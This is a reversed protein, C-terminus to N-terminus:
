QTPAVLEIEKEAVHRPGKTTTARIIFPANYPGPFKATQIKLAVNSQDPALEVPNAFIGKAHGPQILEIKMAQKRVTPERRITVPIVFVTGSEATYSDASTEVSVLGAAAVSILQDDRANSTYSVKHQTGDFDTMEGIIMVQVRSTRGVEVRFPFDIPFDFEAAMAPINVIRDTIGQLHRIQKDALRVTIPGNFDGRELEYHRFYTTGGPLGTVIRYQGTHKFPIRPVIGILVHDPGATHNAARTANQDGLDGTGKVSLRHVGIKTKPPVFFQLDVSNKNAGIKANFVKVNGPLGNLALQIEGKFGGQRQVNIKLKPGVPKTNDKRTEIARTINLHAAGFTLSFSPKTESAAATIRYSFTSGGRSAFREKVQITYVGTNPATFDLRPDVQGKARDDNIALQKGKVDLVSLIADLPSGLQAAALDITIKQKEELQIQWTDIEGPEVIRGNVVVPVAVTTKTPELYEPHNGVLFTSQGLAKLTFIQRDSKANLSVTAAHHPLAPGTFEAQITTGRQGGLPYNFLIHPGRRLTLRYIHNQLGWFKADRISVQYRGTKLAKFWHIPDGSRIIKQTQVPDGDPDHVALVAHLPSGFRKVVADCTITEGAKAAFTWIDIDERPFIRGNVTIPLTVPQPIPRGDMENEMVEPLEGVVFRLPRTAGQSTWCRWLRMGIAADKAITVEGIHDKPYDEKQQSLPQYILPGEFWTTKTRKVLPSVKVGAGLMEFNAQGHFYYGGVRVKLTSGRQGGAPYIYEIDPEVAHACFAM